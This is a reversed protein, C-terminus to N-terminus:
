AWSTSVAFEGTLGQETLTAEVDSWTIESANEAVAATCLMCLMMVLALLKKM